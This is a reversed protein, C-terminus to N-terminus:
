YSLPGPPHFRGTPHLPLAGCGMVVIVFLALAEWAELVFPGVNLDAWWPMQDLRELLWETVFGLPVGVIKGLIPVTLSLVFGLSFFPVMMWNAAISVLNVQHFFYLLIPATLLAVYANLGLAQGLSRLSLSVLRWPYTILALTAACSLQFGLNTSFEPCIILVGLIAWALHVTSPARRGLFVGLLACFAMSGARLISPSPGIVWVYFGLIGMQFLALLAGRIRLFKMAQLMVALILGVHLGSIALLHSMGFRGLEERINKSPARGTVMSIYLTRAKPYPMAEELCSAWLAKWYQRFEQLPQAEPQWEGIYHKPGNRKLNMWGSGICEQSPEKHFAICFPISGQPHAIGYAIPQYTAKPSFECYISSALEEPPDSLTDDSLSCSIWLAALIGCGIILASSLRIRNWLFIIGFFGAAWLPLFPLSM